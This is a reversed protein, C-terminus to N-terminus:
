AALQMNDTTRDPHLVHHLRELERIERWGARKRAAAAINQSAGARKIKIIGQTGRHRIGLLHGINQTERGSYRFDKHDIAKTLYLLAGARMNRSFMGYEGMEIKLGDAEFRFKREIYALLDECVATPKRGLHLMIHTHAGTGTQRERTWVFATEVGRRRLHRTLRDLLATQLESWKPESFLASLPWTVALTANLACGSADAFAVANVLDRVQDLSLSAARDPLPRRPYGALPGTRIIGAQKNRYNRPPRWNSNPQPEADAAEIVAHPPM